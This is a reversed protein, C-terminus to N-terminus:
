PAVGEYARRLENIDLKGMKMMAKMARQQRETDDSGVLDGIGSPVVNWTIGFKDVLWGCPLKKGGESLRDWLADVEEQTGCDAFLSIPPQGQSGASEGGNLAILDQGDLTFEVTMASGSPGPGADTYRSVNGMKSNKFTAVYFKAADEAETAFWLYPKIKPM